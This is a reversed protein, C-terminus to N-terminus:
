PHRTECSDGESIINLIESLARPGTPLYIVHLHGPPYDREHRNTTLVLIPWGESLALAQLTIPHVLVSDSILVASYKHHAIRHQLDSLSTALHAAHGDETLWDLLAPGLEHRSDFILYQRM